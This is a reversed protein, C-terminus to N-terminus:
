EKKKSKLFHYLNKYVEECDGEEVCEPDRAPTADIRPIVPKPVPMRAQKPQTTATIAPLAKRSHTATSRRLERLTDFDVIGNPLLNNSSQFASLARRTAVDLEGAQHKALLGLASLHKQAESVRARKGRHRIDQEYNENNKADTSASELCTWYPVGAHRGLLEIAGVEILNRVAQSHSEVREIRLPSGFTGAQIIGFAGAEFRKRTVVMSNAVSAGPIVRRSPFEVLHMDVTVVSLSRSGRLYSETIGKDAGRDYGVTLANDSPDEDIQSISGRVYLRPKIEDEKRTTVIELQGFGSIRAQDLFVYKKNTRNMQNIANILMDDAGVDVDHTEDPFGSSSILLQGRRSQALLRDM